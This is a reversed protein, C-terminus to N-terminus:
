ENEDDAINCYSHQLVISVALMKTSHNYFQSLLFLLINHIFLTGVPVTPYYYAGLQM